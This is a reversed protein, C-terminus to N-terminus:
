ICFALVSIVILYFAFYRFSAKQTLRLMVKIAFIGVLFAIVFSLIVGIVNVSIIYDKAVIKYIEMAMSLLIIPLSMLFSFKACEEKPVGSLIGACITTGSRSIGPFIALGQGIGMIIANKNTLQSQVPFNEKRKSALDTAMLLVASILFCFPLFAGEFSQDILPMLILALICTPITAIALRITEKSFPHRILYFVEKRLVVVISFFTALHLLISVFLSDSIGFWESLLVLHGSSSIPLFETLGQVIGLIVLYFIEM